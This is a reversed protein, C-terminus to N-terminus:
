HPLEWARVPNSESPGVILELYFSNDYQNLMAREEWANDETQSVIQYVKLM